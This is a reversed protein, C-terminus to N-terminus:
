VVVNAVGKRSHDVTISGYASTGATRTPAWGDGLWPVHPVVSGDTIVSGLYKWPEGLRVPSQPPDAGCGQDSIIKRRIGPEPIPSSKTDIKKSYSHAMWQPRQFLEIPNASEPLPQAISRATIYWWLTHFYLFSEIISSTRNLRWM